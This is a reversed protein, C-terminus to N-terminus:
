FANHQTTVLLKPVLIITLCRLTWFHGFMNSKNNTYPDYPCQRRSLWFIKAWNEILLPIRCYLVYLSIRFIHVDPVPAKLSFEGIEARQRSNLPFFPWKKIKVKKNKDFWYLGGNENFSSIILKGFSWDSGFFILFIM